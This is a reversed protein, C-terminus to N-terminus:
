ISQILLNAQAGTWPVEESRLVMRCPPVQPLRTAKGYLIKVPNGTISCKGSICRSHFSQSNLIGTNTAALINRSVPPQDSDISFEIRDIFAVADVLYNFAVANMEMAM